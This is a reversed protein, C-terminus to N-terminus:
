PMVGACSFDGMITAGHRRAVRGGTFNSAIGHIKHGFCVWLGDRRPMARSFDPHGLADARKLNLDAARAGPEAGANPNVAGTGNQWWLPLIVAAL